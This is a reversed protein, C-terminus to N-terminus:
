KVDADSAKTGYLDNYSRIITVVSQHKSSCALYSTQLSLYALLLEGNTKAELPQVKDCEELLAPSVEVTAYKVETKYVTETCACGLVVFLFLIFLCNRM